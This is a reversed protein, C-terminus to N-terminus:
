SKVGHSTWHEGVCEMPRVFLKAAMKNENGSCFMVKATM